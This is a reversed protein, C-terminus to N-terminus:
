KPVNGAMYDKYSQPTNPGGTYSGGDSRVPKIGTRDEEACAAHIGDMPLNDDHEGCFSCCFSVDCHEGCDPCIDYEEWDWHLAGCCNTTPERKDM